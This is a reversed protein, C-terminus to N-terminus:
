SEPKWQWPGPKWGQIPFKSGLTMHHPWFFLIIIIIFAFLCVLSKCFSHLILPCDLDTSLPLQQFSMCHINCLIVIQSYNNGRMRELGEEEQRLFIYGVMVIFSHICYTHRQVHVHNLANNITRFSRFIWTPKGPPETTFFGSALALFAPSAPKIGPNPLDGPPSSLGSWYEQRSYEMSLPAQHAVTWLIASLRVHSLSQACVCACVCM